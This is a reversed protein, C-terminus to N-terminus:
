PDGGTAGAAVVIDDIGIWEDSGAADTTMIRLEVLAQNDVAAPLTVSVPTEMTQAPGASADAVFAEPVNIFNGSGGVRYHLAVPQVSNDNNGDVDRLLYSVQIGSSGRTDLHLKLYPARASGSGQMAVVPNAIEFEALRDNNITTAAQNALVNVTGPADPALITQPDVATGGALGAGSYGVIGPVNTWTNNASILSTDTWDQAFPLLQPTDDAHAAGIAAALAFVLARRYPLPQMTRIGQYARPGRRSWA